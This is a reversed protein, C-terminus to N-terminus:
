QFNIEGFVTSKRSFLSTDFSKAYAHVKRDHRLVNWLLQLVLNALEWDMFEAMASLLKRLGAGGESEFLAAINTQLAFNILIGVVHHVITVEPSDLLALLIQDASHSVFHSYVSPYRSLNGLARCAEGVVALNGDM